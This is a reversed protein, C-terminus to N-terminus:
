IQPGLYKCLNLRLNMESLQSSHPQIAVKVSAYRVSSELSGVNLLSPINHQRLKEWYSYFDVYTNDCEAQINSHILSQGQFEKQFQFVYSCKLYCPKFYLILLHLPYDYCYHNTYTVKKLPQGSVIKKLDQALSMPKITDINKRATFPVVRLTLIEVNSGSQKADKPMMLSLEVEGKKWAAKGELPLIAQNFVSVGTTVAENTFPSILTLDAQIKSIFAPTVAVTARDSGQKEYSASAAFITVHDIAGIIPFGAENMGFVKLSVLNRACAYRGKMEGSVFAQKIRQLANKVDNMRLLSAYEFGMLNHQVFAMQQPAIRKKLNILQAIKNIEAQTEPSSVKYNTYQELIEDIVREFGQSYLKFSHTRLKLGEGLAELYLDTSTEIRAPVLETRSNVISARSSVSALLYEVFNSLDFHKSFQLGYQTPQLLRLITRVKQAIPKLEPEATFQLSTLMSRAFSAVQKSPEIWSRVAIEQLESYRPQAWPLISLAAIRVEAVEQPNNIIAMLVNILMAPNRKATRKMSYVALARVMPEKQQAGEAVQVLIKAADHHGLKGLATIALMELHINQSQRAQELLQKLTPIYEKVLVPSNHTGFVGYIRVPYNAAMTQPNVYAHYFLNSVQLLASTLLSQKETTNIKKWEKIKNVLQQLLETTPTQISRIAQQLALASKYASVENADVKKLVFMTAPNTGVMAMSDLLLEKAISKVDAAPCKSIAQNWISELDTLGMIEMYKSVTLVRGAIDEEARMSAPNTALVQAMNTIEEVIKPITVQRDLKIPILLNGPASLSPQPLIPYTGLVALSERIVERSVPSHRPYHYDLNKAYFHRSPLALPQSFPKKELLEIM